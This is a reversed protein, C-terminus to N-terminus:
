KKGKTSGKAFQPNIRIAHDVNGKVYREIHLRRTLQKEIFDPPFSCDQEVARCFPGSSEYKTFGLWQRDPALMGLFMNSQPQFSELLPYQGLPGAHLSALTFCVMVWGTCLSLTIGGAQDVVKLFRMRVKSVSDTAARFIAAFVVFCIWLALFDFFAVYSHLDDSFNTLYKALPEYFNMALLGAFVVNVLCLANSWLGDRSLFGVCVALILVCLLWVVWCSAEPQPSPLVEAPPVSPLAKAKDLQKMVQQVGDRVSAVAQASAAALGPKKKIDDLTALV